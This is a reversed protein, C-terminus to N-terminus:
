FLLTLGEIERLSAYIGRVQEATQVTIDLTLAVHRGGPTSRVTYDLESASVLESVVANVVRAEFDDQAIGIAKIQYVGPFNHTSELLELSPRHDMAPEPM